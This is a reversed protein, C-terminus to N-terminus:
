LHLLGVFASILRCGGAEGPQELYTGRSARGASQAPLRCAQRHKQTTSPRFPGAFSPAPSGPKKVEPPALHRRWGAPPQPM